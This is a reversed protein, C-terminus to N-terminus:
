SARPRVYTMNDVVGRMANVFPIQGFHQVAPKQEVV